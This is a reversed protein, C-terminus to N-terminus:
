ILAEWREFTIARSSKEEREREETDVRMVLGYCLTCLLYFQRAVPTKKESGDAEVGGSANIKQNRGALAQERGSLVGQLQSLTPMSPSM